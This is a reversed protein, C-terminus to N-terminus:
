APGHALALTAELFALHAAASPRNGRGQGTTPDVAVPLLGLPGALDRVAEVTLNAEEWRGLAALARAYRLTEVVSAAPPEPALFLGVGHRLRVEAMSAAVRPDETPWPGLWAASLVGPDPTDPLTPGWEAMAAEAARRARHWGVADLDLPHRSWALETLEALARRGLLSAPQTALWDAAAVLRDWHGVLPAGSPRAAALLVAATAEASPRDDADVGLRVPESRRWGAWAAVHEGAPPDGDVGLV